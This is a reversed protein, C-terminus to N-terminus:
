QKEELEKVRKNLELLKDSLIETLEVLDGTVKTMEEMRSVILENLETM